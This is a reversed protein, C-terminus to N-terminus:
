RVRERYAREIHAVVDKLPRHDTMIQVGADRYAEEREALLERIRELPNAVQLLPRNPNNKTREYITEPSACLAVVVGKSKLLARMSPQVVLGGGCSIVCGYAPHGHEIFARELGRFHPEGEQEFIEPISKGQEREIAHDVDILRMGMSEALARGVASKGTGMFGVLYINPRTDAQTNM